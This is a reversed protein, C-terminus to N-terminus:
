DLLPQLEERLDDDECLLLLRRAEAIAGPSGLYHLARVGEELTRPFSNVHEVIANVPEAGPLQALAYMLDTAVRQSDTAALQQTLLDGWAQSLAENRGGHYGLLVPLFDDDFISEQFARLAPSLESESNALYLGYALVAENSSALARFFSGFYLEEERMAKRLPKGAEGQMALAFEELLTDFLQYGPEGFALLDSGLLLLSKLDGAAIAEEFLTFALTEDLKSLLVGEARTPQFLLDNSSANGKSADGALLQEQLAALRKRLEKSESQSQELKDTLSEVEALLPNELADQPQQPAPQDSTTQVITGLFFGTLILLAILVILRLTAM